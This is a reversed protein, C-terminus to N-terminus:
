ELRPAPRQPQGVPLEVVFRAGGEARAECYLRGGHEGIMAYSVSLGLGRGEGPGRTTFFPTFLRPLNEPSVGPGDDEVEVRVGGPTGAVRITLVGCGKTSAMAQRANRILNFLVEHVQSADAWVPPAHQIETRVEINDTRLHHVQLALVRAVHDSLVCLSRQPPSPEAFVILDRVIGAVRRTAADITRLGGRIQEPVGSELLLYSQAQIVMLPNNIEHAVGAALEGVASLREARVLAQQAVRLDELQQRSEAYLRANDLALGIQDATCALLLLEEDAFRRDTQRGLALTGLIRDRARIPVCVFGRIADAQVAARAEPLLDGDEAADDVRRALGSAAVGGILGQGM